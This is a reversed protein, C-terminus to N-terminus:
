EHSIIKYTEFANVTKELRDELNNYYDNVHEIDKPRLELKDKIFDAQKQLVHALSEKMVMVIHERDDKPIFKNPYSFRNKWTQYDVKTKVCDNCMEFLENRFNNHRNCILSKFNETELIFKSINDSVALSLKGNKNTDKSM